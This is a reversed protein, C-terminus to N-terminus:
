IERPYIAGHARQCRVQSSEENYKKSRCNVSSVAPCWLRTCKFPWYPRITHGRLLQHPILQLRQWLSFKVRQTTGHEYESAHPCLFADQSGKVRICRSRQISAGSRATNARWRSRSVHPGCGSGAASLFGRECALAEGGMCALVPSAHPGHRRELAIQHNPSEGIGDSM